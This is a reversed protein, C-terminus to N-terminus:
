LETYKSEDLQEKDDNYLSEPEAVTLQDTEKTQAAFLEQATARQTMSWKGCHPCPEYRHTVLNLGVVTRTFAKGCKPCVAAGYFGAGTVAQDSHAYKKSQWKSVGFTLVLILGMFVGIGIFIKQMTKGAETKEIFRIEILNSQVTSGDNLTILASLRHSGSPFDDTNFYYKVKFGSVSAMEKGDLMYQVTKVEQLNGNVTMSMRGQVAGPFGLGWERRLTLQYDEENQAFVPTLGILALSFVMMLMMAVHQRKM